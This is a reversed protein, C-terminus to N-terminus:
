REAPRRLPQAEGGHKAEPIDETVGAGTLALDLPFSEKEEKDKAPVDELRAESCILNVVKNEIIQNRLSDMQGQKELRARVRRPSEGGQRAIQQIQQQYDAETAEIGEDEAIREFIFHEKLSRETAHMSNQRIQNLFAQIDEESFGSSRLELVMRNSERKAQRKVLDPPLEWDADRTLTATIQERLERMQTYQLQRNLENRIADRLDGEDEFDGLEKLFDDTVRPLEVYRIRQVTFTVDVEQSRMEANEAGPGITVKTTRSEGKGAGVILEGFNEITADRLSLAPLARVGVKDSKMIEKGDATVQIRVDLIDNPEVPGERDVMRGRKALLKQLEAEVEEDSHERVTRRLTLGKWQPVDFEPRVEIDFEFTLPGDDPISVADLDLDPEGIASFEHEDGLQALADTLLSGKVREAIQDKFRAEVLKRPARGPRFGPVEAKPALEDFAESLYRDVDERSITVAVHRQCAGPSEVNVDLSLKPKEQDAATEQDGGLLTDDSSM